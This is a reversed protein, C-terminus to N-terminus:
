QSHGPRFVYSFGVFDDESVRVVPIPADQWKGHAGAFTKQIFPYRGTQSLAANTSLDYISKSRSGSRM